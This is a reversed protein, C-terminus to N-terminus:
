RRYTRHNMYTRRAVLLIYKHPIVSVCYLHWKPRVENCMTCIMLEEALLHLMLCKGNRTTSTTTRRQNNTATTQSAVPRIANIALLLALLLFTTTNCFLRNSAVHRRSCMQQIGNGFNSKVPKVQTKSHHRTKITRHRAGNTKSSSIAVVSTIARALSCSNRFTTIFTAVIIVILLVLPPSAFFSFNVASLVVSHPSVVLADCPPHVLSNIYSSALSCSGDHKLRHDLNGGIKPCSPQKTSSLFVVVLLVLIFSWFLTLRRFPLGNVLSHIIIAIEFRQCWQHVSQESQRSVTTSFNAVSVKHGELRRRQTGSTTINDGNALPAHTLLSSSTFHPLSASALHEWHAELQKQDLQSSTPQLTPPASSTTTLLTISSTDVDNRICSIAEEQAQVKEMMKQDDEADDHQINSWNTLDDLPQPPPVLSSNIRNLNTDYWHSVLESDSVPLDPPM